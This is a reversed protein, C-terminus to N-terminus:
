NSSLELILPQINTISSENSLSWGFWGPGQGEIDRLAIEGYLVKIEFTSQNWNIVGWASGCSWFSSGTEQKLEVKISQELANYNFATHATILGWSSMARAYYAGCEYECWPNRQEGNYRSRVGRVIDLGKDTFGEYILHSAVHYEVGTWAEDCYIFPLAPRGGKPWSCLVMASEDNLAYSRQCNVMDGIRQYFNHQHISLLAARRNDSNLLDDLGSVRGLWQGVLQDSLCGTGFQWKPENEAMQPIERQPAAIPVESKKYSDPDIHQEYWQGNFLEDDMAAAAKNALEALEDAIDDGLAAALKAGAQLGGIYYSNALPNPGFFEIDYTNHQIGDILGNKDQDWYKWCYTISNRLAPWMGRLWETDGTLQWLQYIHIITGLQADVAPKPPNPICKNPVQIRFHMGGSDTCSCNYTYYASHMRQMMQPFLHDTTQAYNWVHNCSGPCCGNDANSGEYGYPTGDELYIFTPSRLVAIQSSAADLVADDVSSQELADRFLATQTFLREHEQHYYKAVAKVDAFRKSYWTAWRAVDANDSIDVGAETPIGLTYANNPFHWAVRLPFDISEGAAIKGNFGLGGVHPANKPADDYEINELTGTNHFEDWTQQLPDFWGLRPWSCRHFGEQYPTHLYVQGNELHDAPLEINEFLLGRTNEDSVYTSRLGGQGSNAVPNGLAALLSVDLEKDSTNIITYNLDMIPIGSDDENLPILPNYGTIEVKIPLAPDSLIVKAFPYAGHFECESFRPLGFTDGLGNHPFYKGHISRQHRFYPGNFRGECVRTHIEGNDDAIRLATFTNRNMTDLAPKNAIQWESLAGNGTLSICGTGIGGIPFAIQDRQRETHRTFRQFPM